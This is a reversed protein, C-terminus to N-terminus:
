EQARIDTFSVDAFPDVIMSTDVEITLICEYLSKISYRPAYNKEGTDVPAYGMLKRRTADSHDDNLLDCHFATRLAHFDM